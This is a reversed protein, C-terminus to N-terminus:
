PSAPKVALPITTQPSAQQTQTKQRTSSINNDKVNQVANISAKCDDNSKIAEIAVQPMEMGNAVAWVVIHTDVSSLGLSSITNRINRCFNTAIENKRSNVGGVGQAATGGQSSATGAFEGISSAFWPQQALYSRITGINNISGDYLVYSMIDSPEVDNFIAEIAEPRTPKCRKQTQSGCYYWDVFVSPRPYDFSLIWDGVLYTEKSEWDTESKPIEVSLVAGRTMDSDWLRLDRDTWHQEELGKTFIKSIASDIAEAKTKNAQSTLTTIVSTEPSVIQAVGLAVQLANAAAHSEREENAKLSFNFTIIGNKGNKKVLFLPMKRVDHYVSRSFQEGAKSDSQHQLTLLPTTIKLNGTDDSIKVSLNIAFNKDSWLKSFWNRTQYRYLNDSEKNNVDEEKVDESRNQQKQPKKAINRTAIIVRTYSDSFYTSTDANKNWEDSLQTLPTVVLPTHPQLPLDESAAPEKTKAANASKGPDQTQKPATEPPEKGWSIKPNERQKLALKYEDSVIQDTSATQLTACGGLLLVASLCIIELKWMGNM